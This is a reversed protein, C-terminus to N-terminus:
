EVIAKKDIVLGAEALMNIFHRRWIKNVMRPFYVIGESYCIFVLMYFRREGGTYVYRQTFDKFFSSNNEVCIMMTRYAQILSLNNEYDQLHSIMESYWRQYENEVLVPFNYQLIGHLTWRPHKEYYGVWIQDDEICLERHEVYNQQLLYERFKDTFQKQDRVSLQYCVPLLKRHKEVYILIYIDIILPISLFVAVIIKWPTNTFGGVAGFYLIAILLVIMLIGFLWLFNQFCMIFKQFKKM